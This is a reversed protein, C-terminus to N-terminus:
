IQQAETTAVVTMDARAMKPVSPDSMFSRLRTRFAEAAEVTDFDLDVLVAAANDIDRSIRYSRAGSGKRDLPDKDFVRRWADYDDLEYRLRLQAAM